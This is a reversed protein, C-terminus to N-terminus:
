RDIRTYRGALPRTAAQQPADWHGFPVLNLLKNYTKGLAM